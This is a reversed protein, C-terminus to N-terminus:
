PNSQQVKKKRRFMLMVVYAFLSIGVIAFFVQQRLTAAYWLSAMAFAWM